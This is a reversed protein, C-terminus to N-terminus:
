DSESDGGRRKKAKGRPRDDGSYSGDSDSGEDSDIARKGGKKKGKGKAGARAGAIAARAADVGEWAEPEEAELFDANLEARGGGGGRGGARREVAAQKRALLEREKERQKEEAEREAKEVEPDRTTVTHRMRTPKLHKKDVSASLLAHSKSQLSAPRVVLKHRFQAQSRLLGASRVFLHSNDHEMPVQAVNLVEDGICLQTSGDSWRVLRANSQRSGDPAFRWRICNNDLPRRREAGREDRYAEEELVHTEASFPRPNVALINSLRVM